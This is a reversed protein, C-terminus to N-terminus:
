TFLSGVIAAHLPFVGDAHNSGRKGDAHSRSEGKGPNASRASRSPGPFRLPASSDFRVVIARSAFM